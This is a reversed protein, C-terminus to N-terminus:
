LSNVVITRNDHQREVLNTMLKLAEETTMETQCEDMEPERVYWPCPRFSM